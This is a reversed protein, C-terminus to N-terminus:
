DEDEDECEDEELQRARSGEHAGVGCKGGARDRRTAAAVAIM